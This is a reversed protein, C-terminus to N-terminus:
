MEGIGRLPPPLTGGGDTKELSSKKCFYSQDKFEQSKLNCRYTDQLISYLQFIEFFFNIATYVVMWLQGFNVFIAFYAKKQSCLSCNLM